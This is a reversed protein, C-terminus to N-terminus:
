FPIFMRMGVEHGGREGKRIADVGYGYTVIFQSDYPGTFSLGTGLGTVNEWGQGRDDTRRFTANDAYFHASIDQWETIPIEYSFNALFYDEALFESAYYGMIRTAQEARRISGGLGTMTTRDLNFGKQATLQLGFTQNAIFPASIGAGLVLRQGTAEAQFLDSEPGWDQWNNKHGIIYRLSLDLGQVSKIGPMMGGLQLKFELEQGFHDNPIRFDRATEDKRSYTTYSFKYEVSFNLPIEFGTFRGVEHNIGLSTFGSYGDFQEDRLPAGLLYEPTYTDFHILSGIRWIFATDPGFAEPWILGFSNFPGAFLVNFHTDQTPFETQNWYIVGSYAPNAQQTPISVGFDLFRRNEPDVQASVNATSFWFCGALLCLLINAKDAKNTATSKSPGSSFKM